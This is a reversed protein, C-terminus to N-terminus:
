AEGTWRCNQPACNLLKWFCFFTWCYLITSKTKKNERHVWNTRQKYKRTLTELFRQATQKVTESFWVYNPFSIPIIWINEIKNSLLFLPPPRKLRHSLSILDKDAFKGEVRLIEAFIKDIEIEM